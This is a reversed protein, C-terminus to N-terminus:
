DALKIRFFVQPGYESEHVEEKIIRGSYNRRIKDAYTEEEAASSDASDREVFSYGKRMLEGELKETLPGVIKKGQHSKELATDYIYATDDNGQRDPFDEPYTKVTPKAYSFGIIEDTTSDKALIIITSPDEFDKQLIEEDFAKDEGFASVEVRVVENKVNEWPTQEPDYVDFRLNGGEKDSGQNTDPTSHMKDFPNNATM